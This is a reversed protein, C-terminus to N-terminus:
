GWTPAQGQAAALTAQVANPHVGSIVIVREDVRKARLFRGRSVVLLVIFGVIGAIMVPVGIEPYDQASAIAGIVIGLILAFVGLIVMVLGMKWRSECASCLPLHLRGKKQMILAVIAAIVPSLIFLFLVWPPNWVFQQNRRHQTPSVGCKVCVNPLPAEKQVALDLGELYALFAGYGPQAPVYAHGYPGPPQYPNPPSYPNM